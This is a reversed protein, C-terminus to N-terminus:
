LKRSARGRRRADRRWGDAVRVARGTDAARRGAGSQRNAMVVAAFGAPQGSSRRM